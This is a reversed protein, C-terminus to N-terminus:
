ACFMYSIIFIIICAAAAQARHLIFRIFNLKSVSYVTCFLTKRHRLTFWPKAILSFLYPYQRSFSLICSNHPSSTSNSNWATTTHLGPETLKYVQLSAPSIPGENYNYYYAYFNYGDRNKRKESRYLHTGKTLM